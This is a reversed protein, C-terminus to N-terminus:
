VLHNLRRTDEFREIALFILKEILEKYSIGSANWLMPYMSISTFGPMTNIENIYIKNNQENWFFDVRSLGSCNLSKFAEVAYQRIEESVDNPLTAPILSKSKNDIYKANYDYFENCPIIEGVVSAKPDDNGLVACELERGKIFEEVLVKKDYNSALNLASKLEEKDHAKSIGVSSGANAPKVFCPLGLKNEIDDIIKEINLNIDNKFYYSYNAQPIGIKEFVLKSFVKDMGVASSLVNCGVYPIEALEFLGQITGDEGNCGHLIPFIVDIKKDNRNNLYELFMTESIGPKSNNSISAPLMNSELCNNEWEGSSIKELPGNYSLWRGDKTIGVLTIDFKTQDINKIVSVASSRSVEHESSKGGFVIMVRKKM